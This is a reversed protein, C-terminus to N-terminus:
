IKAFVEKAHYSSRVFPGSFVHSFGLELGYEKLEEFVEPRVYEIVKFASLSPRLYQGITIVDCGTDQLDNMVRKIQEETEGLGLMMGSKTVIHPVRTKVRQLLALSREYVAQPRVKGYLEPATEVNHNFVDPKADAVKDIADANGKFDPTLVEITADPLRDQLAAIVDAFNEAGGDYLDDRTVSTVVVHSLNLNAATEALRHPEDSYPAAPKSTHGVACFGCTRTCVDGLIMFTAVGNSFCEGMNPCRAARCVTNLGGEDIHRRVNVTDVFRVPTKRLWAPKIMHLVNKGEFHDSLTHVIRSIPTLTLEDRVSLHSAGSSEFRSM